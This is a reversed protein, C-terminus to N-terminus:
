FGLLTIFAEIIFFSLLIITGPNAFFQVIRDKAGGFYILFTSLYVGDVRIRMLLFSYTNVWASPVGYTFAYSGKKRKSM